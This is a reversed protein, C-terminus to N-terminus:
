PLDLDADNWFYTYGAVTIVILQSVPTLRAWELPMMLFEFGLGALAIILIFVFVSRKSYYKLIADCSARSSIVGVWGGILAGFFGAAEIRMSSMYYNLLTMLGGVISAVVTLVVLVIIFAVLTAGVVVGSSVKSPPHLNNM